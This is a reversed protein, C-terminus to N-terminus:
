NDTRGNSGFMNTLTRHNTYLKANNYQM